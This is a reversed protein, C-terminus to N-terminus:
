GPGYVSAYTAAWGLVESVYAISHNYAFVAGPLGAASGAGDACLMRAAAFVADARDNIDPAGTGHVDVGYEAWTGPLFQMPGEAGASSVAVNRGHDSEVRGIGAVVGWPLGPCSAAAARYLGLMDPPIDGASTGVAAAAVGGIGTGADGPFGGGAADLSVVLVVAALPGTAVAGVVVKGVVGVGYSM